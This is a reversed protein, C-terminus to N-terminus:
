LWPAFVHVFGALVCGRSDVRGRVKRMDVKTKFNDPFKLRAFLKAEKNKFFPDQDSSVGRFGDGMEGSTQQIGSARSWVRKGAHSGGGKWM